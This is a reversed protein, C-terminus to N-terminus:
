GEMGMDCAVPPTGPPPAYGIRLVVLNTERTSVRIEASNCAQFRLTAFGGQALWAARFTPDNTPRERDRSGAILREYLATVAEASPMRLRRIEGSYQGLKTGGPALIDILTEELRPPAVEAGPANPDGWRPGCGSLLGPALLLCLVAALTKM